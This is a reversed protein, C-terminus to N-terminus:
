PCSSIVLKAERIFYSAFESAAQTGFCWTMSTYLTLSPLAGCIKLM